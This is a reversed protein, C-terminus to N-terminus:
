SESLLTQHIAPVTTAALHRIFWGPRRSELFAWYARAPPEGLKPCYLIEATPDEIDGEGVLCEYIVRSAYVRVRVGDFAEEYVPQRKSM